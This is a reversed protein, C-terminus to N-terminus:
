IPPETASLIAAVTATWADVDGSAAVEHTRAVQEDSLPVPELMEAYYPEVLRAILSVPYRRRPRGSPDVVVVATTQQDGVWKTGTLNRLMGIEIASQPQLALPSTTSCFLGYYRKTGGTASSARSVVLIGPPLAKTLGTADRYSRWAVVADPASDHAAARGAMPSFFASADADGARLEDIAAGLANGIGWVFLGSVRREMEKRRVIQEVSMGSETGFRTWCFVSPLVTEPDSDSSGQTAVRPQDSRSTLKPDDRRYTRPELLDSLKVLSPGLAGQPSVACIDWGVYTIVDDVPVNSALLQSGIGFSHAPTDKM